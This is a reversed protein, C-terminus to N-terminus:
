HPGVAGDYFLTKSYHVQFRAKVAFLEIERIRGAVGYQGDGATM